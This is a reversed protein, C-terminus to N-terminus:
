PTKIKNDPNEIDAPDIDQRADLGGLAAVLQDFEPFDRPTLPPNGMLPTSLIAEDAPIFVSGAHPGSHIPYSGTTWYNPLGRSSMATEIGALIAAATEATTIFGIM